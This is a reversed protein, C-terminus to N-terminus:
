NTCLTCVRWFSSIESGRRGWEFNESKTKTNMMFAFVDGKTSSCNAFYVICNYHTMNITNFLCLHLNAGAGSVYQAGGTTVITVAKNNAATCLFYMVAVVGKHKCARPYILYEISQCTKISIVELGPLPEVTCTRAMKLAAADIVHDCRCQEPWCHM